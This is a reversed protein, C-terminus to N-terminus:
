RDNFWIRNLLTTMKDKYSDLSLTKKYGNLAIKERATDNNLYYLLKDRLEDIDRFTEIEEGPKFYEMLGDSYDTIFFTGCTPIDFVRLNLGSLKETDWNSINLAIKTTNYLRILDNGWIGKGKIMKMVQLNLINKKRWKPGYVAISLDTLKNLVEQRRGTWGGVFAVDQNYTRQVSSFLNKYLINDIALLSSYNIKDKENFGERHICFYHDYATSESRMLDFWMPGKVWWGVTKKIHYKKKLRKIFELDFGHGRLVFLIDPRFEIVSKELLSQRFNQNNWSSNRSIDMHKFGANWIIKNLPKFFLRDVQSDIGSNFCMVECGLSKLARTCSLGLPICGHGFFYSILVRPYKNM